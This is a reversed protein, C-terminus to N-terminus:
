QNKVKVKFEHIGIRPPENLTTVRVAIKPTGETLATVWVKFTTTGTKVLSDITAFNTDAELMWDELTDIEDGTPIFGGVGGANVDFDFSEGPQMTFTDM